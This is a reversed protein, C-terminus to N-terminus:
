RRIEFDSCGSVEADEAVVTDVRAAAPGRALWAEVREVSSADGEVHVLVDGNALNRVWGTAGEAAAFRATAYRFGVGQVRGRVVVHRARRATM